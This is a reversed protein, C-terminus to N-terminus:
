RSRTCVSQRMKRTDPTQSSRNRVARKAFNNEERVKSSGGLSRIREIHSIVVISDMTEMIKSTEFNEHRNHRLDAYNM